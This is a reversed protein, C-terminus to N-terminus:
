SARRQPRSSDQTPHLLSEVIQRLVATTSGQESVLLSAVPQEDELDVELIVSAIRLQDRHHLEAQQVRQGNVFVGNLSQLDVVEWHDELFVFRCHQRSVDPLPLRVDAKHNRGLVTGSRTVAISLRGPRLILQLPRCRHTEEAIPHWHPGQLSLRAAQSTDHSEDM